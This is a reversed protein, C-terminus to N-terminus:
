APDLAPRVRLVRHATFLVVAGATALGAAVDFLLPYNPSAATLVGFIAASGLASAVTVVDLLSTSLGVRGRIAEQLYSIPISMLAAAGASVLSAAMLLLAFRTNPIGLTDIGVIARYNLTSAYTVGTFFLSAAILASVPPRASVTM